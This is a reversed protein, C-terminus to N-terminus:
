CVGVMTRIVLDSRVFLLAKSGFIAVEISSGDGVEFGEYVIEVLGFIM